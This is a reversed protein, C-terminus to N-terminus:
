FSAWREAGHAPTIVRLPSWPQYRSLTGGFVIVVETVRQSPLRFRVVNVGDHYAAGSLFQYVPPLCSPRSPFGDGFMMSM